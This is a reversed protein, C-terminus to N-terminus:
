GAFDYYIRFGFVLNTMWIHFVTAPPKTDFYIALNDALCCKFFMGVIIWAVGAEFDARKWRLRFAEMQPLLDPRREIPGAVLQPFFGAFNLWDVFRPVPMRHHLTDVTFSVMQFTYFSIGIPITSAWPFGWNLALVETCLFVAYKYFLLPLFQAVVLPWLFRMRAAEPLKEILALAV